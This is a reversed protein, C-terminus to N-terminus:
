ADEGPQSVVAQEISRLAAPLDRAIAREAGDPRGRYLMMLTLTDSRDSFADTLAHRHFRFHERMLRKLRNRAPKSRIQRGTAFGVQLPVRQGVARHPVLRYRIVLSGSRVMRVDSRDRDFLARILRRRKLRFSPPLTYRRVSEDAPM